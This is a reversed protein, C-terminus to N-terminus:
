TTVKMEGPSMITIFGAGMGCVLQSNSCLCPKGDILLKPKAPVWTGAPVMTCPQPTLVGLAAATASAVAPNAMSSCMGFSQVNVNPQMDQITAAPKGGINCRTQSTVTIDSPKSGFTCSVKAGTVVIEGM